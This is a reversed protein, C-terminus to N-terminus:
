SWPRSCKAHPTMSQEILRKHQSVAKTTNHMQQKLEAISVNQSEVNKRLSSYNGSLSNYNTSLSSYNNSLKNIAKNNSEAHRKHDLLAEAHLEQENQVHQSQQLLNEVHLKHDKLADHVHELNLQTNAVQMKSAFYNAAFDKATNYTVTVSENNAEPTETSASYNNYDTNLVKIEVPMDTTMPDSNSGNCAMRMKLTAMNDNAAQNMGSPIQMRHLMPMTPTEHKPNNDMQATSFSMIQAYTLYADRCIM